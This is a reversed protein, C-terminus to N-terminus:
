MNEKLILYENMPIEIVIPVLPSITNDNPHSLLYSM